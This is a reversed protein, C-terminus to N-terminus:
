QVVGDPNNKLWNQLWAQLILVYLIPCAVVNSNADYRWEGLM